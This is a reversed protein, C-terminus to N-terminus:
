ERSPGLVLQVPPHTPGLALRSPLFNKDGGRNSGAGELGIDTAIGVSSGAGYIYVCVFVCVCM